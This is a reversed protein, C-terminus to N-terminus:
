QIQVVTKLASRKTNKKPKPHILTRIFTCLNQNNKSIFRTSQVPQMEDIRYMACILWIHAFRDSFAVFIGSCSFFSVRSFQTESMMYLWMRNCCCLFQIFLFLEVFFFREFSSNSINQHFSIKFMNRTCKKRGIEGLNLFKVYNEM